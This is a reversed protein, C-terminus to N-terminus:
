LLVTKILDGNCQAKAFIFLEAMNNRETFFGTYVCFKNRIIPINDRRDGIHLIELSKRHDM